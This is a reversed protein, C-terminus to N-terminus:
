KGFRRERLVYEELAKDFEKTDFDPWYTDTFYLESYVSQWPLYGSLRYSGGTRIILDPDPQDKTYLYQSFTKEEVATMDVNNAAMQQVARLIEQRGGYSLAINVIIRNNKASKAILKEVHEVIDKPFVTYEGLVHLRAGKAILREPIDGGLFERFVQMLMQVELKSRNWNETSFAWFTIYQIGKKMAHEVIPEVMETGRSHGKYIEFAHKRAWRRNGDMILAVHQPVTNTKKM